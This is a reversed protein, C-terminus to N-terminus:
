LHEQINIIFTALPIVIAAGMIIGLIATYITRRTEFTNISTDGFYQGLNEEQYLKALNEALKVKQAKNKALTAISFWNIAVIVFLSIFMIVSSFVSLSNTSISYSFDYNRDIANAAFGFALGFFILTVILAITIVTTDNRSVQRLENTIQEHLREKM